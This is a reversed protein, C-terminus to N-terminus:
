RRAACSTCRASSASSITRARSFPQARRSTPRAWMGRAALDQSEDSRFHRHSRAGRRLQLRRRQREHSRAHVHGPGPARVIGEGQNYAASNASVHLGDSAILRVKGKMDLNTQNEGVRAEEGLAVFTKGERVSTVKVNLLRTSGDPYSLQKEAEIRVTERDGKVQFSQAGSSEIVAAPDVRAVPEPPPPVERRRTTLFVVALVGVAIALVAWRARKQWALM